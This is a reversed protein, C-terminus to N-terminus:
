WLSFEKVEAASLVKDWTFLNCRKLRYVKSFGRTCKVRYKIKTGEPYEIISTLCMSYSPEIKKKKGDKKVPVIKAHIINLERIVVNDSNIIQVTVDNDFPNIFKVKKHKTQALAQGVLFILITIIVLKKM